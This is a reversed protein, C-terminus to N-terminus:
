AKTGFGLGQHVHLPLVSMAVGIVLYGCRIVAVIPLVTSALRPTALTEEVATVSMRAM